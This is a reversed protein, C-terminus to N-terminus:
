AAPDADAAGSGAPPKPQVAKLKAALWAHFEPDMGPPIDSVPTWAGRCHPHQVGAAPWWRKEPEREVLTGGERRRPSASRGINSKGLWVETQGDKGQANPDVVKFTKGNISKCFSCAGRYAERRKVRQGVAQAAIFGSNCAEGAETVAIRRFDRNLQGFSDFLEQRLATPDSQGLVLGQVHRIVISKMRHRASNTIDSINEAARARSVALINQEVPTLVKPPVARFDTPLLDVISEAERANMTRNAMAASIKGALAARVTLYDAQDQIVGDPLNEQIMYDCMLLWDELTYEAPSRLELRRRVEAFEEDTWRAWPAMAKKLTGIPQGTLLKSLMDQIRQLIAQFRATVTEVHAALWPNEHRDWIVAEHGGPLEAMAKFMDEIADDCQCAPVGGVDILLSTM